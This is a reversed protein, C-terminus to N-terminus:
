PQLSTFPNLLRVGAHEFDKANRTVLTWGHVRATAGILADPVPLLHGGDALGWEEAVDADVPVLRNAFERKVDTLWSAYALAQRHDNRRQLKAVGRQIEGVTIVSLYLDDMHVRSFWDEVGPDRATKRWESLVNTDLLFTM